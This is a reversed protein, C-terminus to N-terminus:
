KSIPEYYPRDEFRMSDECDDIDCEDQHQCYPTLEDDLKFHLCHTCYVHTDQDFSLQRRIESKIRRLIEGTERPFRIAM